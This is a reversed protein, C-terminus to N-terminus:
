GTSGSSDGLHLSEYFANCYLRCVYQYFLELCQPLDNVYLAFLLPGVISGQPVGFRIARTSSMNNGFQVRQTRSTLYNWFWDLSNGRVGYHEVIRALLNQSVKGKKRTKTHFKCSLRRYVSVFLAKVLNKGWGGGQVFNLDKATALYTFPAQSTVGLM